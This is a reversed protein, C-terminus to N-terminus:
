SADRGDKWAQLASVTPANDQELDVPVVEVKGDPWIVLKCNANAINQLTQKHLYDPRATM